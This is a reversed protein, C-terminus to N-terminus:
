AMRIFSSISVFFTLVLIMRGSCLVHLCCFGFNL